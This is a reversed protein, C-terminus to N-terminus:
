RTREDTGDRVQIRTGRTRRRRYYARSPVGQYPRVMCHASDGRLDPHRLEDLIPLQDAFGNGPHLSRCGAREPQARYAHHVRRLARRVFRGALPMAGPKFLGEESGPHRASTPRLEDDPRRRRHRDHVVIHGCRSGHANLRAKEFRREGLRHITQDAEPGLHKEAHPADHLFRRPRVMNDHHYVRFLCRWVHACGRLGAASFLRSGGDHRYVHQRLVVHINRWGPHCPGLHGRPRAHRQRSDANGRRRLRVYRRFRISAKRADNGREHM